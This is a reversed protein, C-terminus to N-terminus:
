TEQILIKKKVVLVRIQAKARLEGTPLTSVNWGRDNMMYGIGSRNAKAIGMHIVMRPIKFEDPDLIHRGSQHQSERRLFQDLFDSRKAIKTKSMTFPVRVKAGLSVYDPHKRQHPLLSFVDL